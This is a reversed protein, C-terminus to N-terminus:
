RSKTQDGKGQLLGPVSIDEDLEEWHIGHGGGSFQFKLRQEPSANSLRPFYSLPVALKRGDFLQLWMSDDDFWVKQAKADIVSSIM